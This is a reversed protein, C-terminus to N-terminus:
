CFKVVNEAHEWIDRQNKQENFMKMILNNLKTLAVHHENQLNHGWNSDFHLIFHQMM